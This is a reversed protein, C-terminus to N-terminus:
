RAGRWPQAAAERVRHRRYAELLMGCREDLALNLDFFGVEHGRRKLLATLLASSYTPFETDWQPCLMLAVKM